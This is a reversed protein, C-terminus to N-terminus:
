GCVLTESVQLSKVAQALVAGDRFEDPAYASPHRLVSPVHGGPLVGLGVKSRSERGRFRGLPNPNRALLVGSGPALDIGTFETLIVEAASAFPALACAWPLSLHRSAM